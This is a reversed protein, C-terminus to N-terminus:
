LTSGETLEGDIKLDGTTRDLAMRDSSNTEDSWRLEDNGSDYRAAVDSGAGYVIKLGDGSIEFDADLVEVPGGPNVDLYKGNSDYVELGDTSRVDFGSVTPIMSLVGLSVTGMGFKKLFDRRSISKSDDRTEEQKDDEIAEKLEEVKNEDEVIDKIRDELDDKM